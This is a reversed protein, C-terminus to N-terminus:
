TGIKGSCHFLHINVKLDVQPSRMVSYPNKGAHSKGCLCNWQLLIKHASYKLERQM